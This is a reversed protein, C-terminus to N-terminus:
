RTLFVGGAESGRTWRIEGSQPGEKGVKLKVREGVLLEDTLEIRFGDASIDKVVVGSEHGDSAILVAPYSVDVRPARQTRPSDM